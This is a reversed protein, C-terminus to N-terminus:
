DLHFTAHVQSMEACKHMTFRKFHSQPALQRVQRVRRAATGKLYEFVFRACLPLELNEPLRVQTMTYSQSRRLGGSVGSAVRTGADYCARSPLKRETVHAERFPAYPVQKHGYGGSRQRQAGTISELTHTAPPISKATVAANREVSKRLHRMCVLM